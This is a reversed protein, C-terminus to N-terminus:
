SISRLLPYGTHLKHLKRYHVVNKHVRNMVAQLRELQLQEIEDRSMCENKEDWINM